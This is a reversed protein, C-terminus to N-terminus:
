ALRAGQAALRGSVAAEANVWDQFASGNKFNRRQARLYAEKRVLELFEGRSVTHVPKETVVPALKTEVKKPEVPKAEAKVEVPKAVVPAATFTPPAMPTEVAAGSALTKKVKKATAPADAKKSSAAKSSSKSKSKSQSMPDGLPFSAPKATHAYIM